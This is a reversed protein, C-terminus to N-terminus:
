DDLFDTHNTLFNFRNQKGMPIPQGFVVLDLPLYCLNSSDEIAEGCWAIASHFIKATEVIRTSNTILSVFPTGIYTLGLVVFTAIRQRGYVGVQDRIVESSIEILGNGTILAVCTRFVRRKTSSYKKCIKKYDEESINKLLYKNYSPKNIQM